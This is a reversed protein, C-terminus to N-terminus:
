HPPFGQNKELPQIKKNWPRGPEAVLEGPLMHSCPQNSRLPSVSSSFVSASQEQM